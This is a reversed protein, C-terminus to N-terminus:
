RVGDLIDTLRKPPVSGDSGVGMLNGDSGTTEGWFTGVQSSIGQDDYIQEELNDYYDDTGVGDNSILDSLHFYSNLGGVKSLKVIGRKQEIETLPFEWHFTNTVPENAICYRLQSSDIGQDELWDAYVLWSTQSGDLKFMM